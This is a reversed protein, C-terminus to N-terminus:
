IFWLESFWSEHHTSTRTPRAAKQAFMKQVDFNTESGLSRPGAFSRAKAGCSHSLLYCDFVRLSLITLYPGMECTCYLCWSVPSESEFNSLMDIIFQDLDINKQLLERRLILFYMRERSVPAGLRLRLTVFARGLAEAAPTVPM